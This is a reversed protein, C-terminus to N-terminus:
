NHRRRARLIYAAKDDNGRRQRTSVRGFLCNLDAMMGNVLETVVNVDCPILEVCCYREKFLDPPLSYHTKPPVM